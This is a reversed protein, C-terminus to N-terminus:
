MEEGPPEWAHQHITVQQYPKGPFEREEHHTENFINEINDYAKAAITLRQFLLQPDLQVNVGDIKVAAKNDLTIVLDSKKFTFDAATVGEMSALIANGVVKATDVNVTSHAHVGTCISRLSPDSTFPNREQLYSM